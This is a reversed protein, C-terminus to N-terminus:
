FQQLLLALGSIGVFAYALLRLREPDIRDSVYEGVYMGILIFVSGVAIYPWLSWNFIGNIMRGSITVINTVMFLFQMSAVYSKHDKTAAIFYPAIPPGGLAFLGAMVGSLAGCGIGVAVKPKARVKDAVMLFYVSLLMLFVSFVIILIRQNAAGVLCTVVFSVVSYAITPPVTVRWDIDRRYKFCLIACYLMNVSLALSPADNFNSGFLFPFIMMMLMVSGFGTVTQLAGAMASGLIVALWILM